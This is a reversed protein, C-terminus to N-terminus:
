WTYVTSADNPTEIIRFFPLQPKEPAKRVVIKKYKGGIGIVPAGHIEIFGRKKLCTADWDIAAEPQYQPYDISFVQPFKM